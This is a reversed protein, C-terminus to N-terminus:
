ELGHTLFFLLSIIQGFDSSWFVEVPLIPTCLPRPSGELGAAKRREWSLESVSFWAEQWALPCSFTVIFILGIPAQFLSRPHPFSLFLHLLSLSEFCEPSDLQSMIISMEDVSVSPFSLVFSVSSIVSLDLLLFKLSRRKIAETKERLLFVM